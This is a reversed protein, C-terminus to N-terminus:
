RGNMHWAGCSCPGDWMDCVDTNANRQEFGAPWGRLKPPDTQPEVHKEAELREDDTLRREELAAQHMTRERALSGAEVPSDGELEVKKLWWEKDREIV